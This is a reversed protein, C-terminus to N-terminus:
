PTTATAIAVAVYDFRDDVAFAPSTEEWRIGPPFFNERGYTALIRQLTDGKGKPIQLWRHYVGDSGQTWLRHARRVTFITYEFGVLRITVPSKVPRWIFFRGQQPRVRIRDEPLIDTPSLSDGEQLFFM